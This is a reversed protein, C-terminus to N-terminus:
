AFYISLRYFPIFQLGSGYAHAYLSPESCSLHSLLNTRTTESLWSFWISNEFIPSARLFYCKQLFFPPVVKTKTMISLILFELHITYFSASTFNWIFDSFYLIDLKKVIKPFTLITIFKFTRNYLARQLNSAPLPLLSTNPFYGWVKWFYCRKYM